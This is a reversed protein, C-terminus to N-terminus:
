PLVEPRREYLHEVHVPQFYDPSRDLEGEGAWLYWGCSTGEIPQRLGHIPWKDGGVELAVGVIAGGVPPKWPVQHEARVQRQKLDTEAALELVDIFSNQLDRYATRLPSGFFTANAERLGVGLVQMTVLVADRGHVGSDFLYSQLEQAVPSTGLAARCSAGRGRCASYAGCGGARSIFVEIRAIAQFKRHQTTLRHPRRKNFRGM